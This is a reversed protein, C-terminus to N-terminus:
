QLYSVCSIPFIDQLPVNLDPLHTACSVADAVVNEDGPGYTIHWNIRSLSEVWRAQKSNLKQQTQLYRLPNHDSHIYVPHYKELYCQWQRAAFVIAGLEKEFTAHHLESSTMKRGIWAVTMSASAHEQMLIAGYAYDSADTYVRFPLNLNPHRLGTANTLAHKIDNFSRSCQASLPLKTKSKARELLPAALTPFQPIFRRFYGALGLFSRIHTASSQLDSEHWSQLVQVKYPDPRLM